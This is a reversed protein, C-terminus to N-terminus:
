REQNLFRKSYQYGTWVASHYPIARLQALWFGRYFGAFGHQSYINHILSHYSLHPHIIKNNKIFDFPYIIAWSSLASLGGYLPILRQDNNHKECYEYTLFYTGYGISERLTTALYGHTIKRILEKNFQSHINHQFHTKLVEMPSMVLTTFLGTTFGSFFTNSYPNSLLHKHKVHNFTSFVIAKEISIGILPFQIGRYFGKFKAQKWTDTITDFISNYNITQFRVRITDIPHAVLSGIAGGIFGPILSDM